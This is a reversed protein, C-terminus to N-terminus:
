KWTQGFAFICWNSQELKYQADDRVREGVPVEKDNQGKVKPYRTYRTCYRKVTESVNGEITTLEYVGPSLERVTEVLGVHLSQAGGGRGYIVLYGPRPEDTLRGINTYTNITRKVHAENAFFM